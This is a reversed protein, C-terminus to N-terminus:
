AKAAYKRELRALASHGHVMTWYAKPWDAFWQCGHENSVWYGREGAVLHYGFARLRATAAEIGSLGRYIPITTM